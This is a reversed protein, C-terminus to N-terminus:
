SRICRRKATQHTGAHDALGVRQVRDRGASTLEKGTMEQLRKQSGCRCCGGEPLYHHVAGCSSCRWRKETPRM